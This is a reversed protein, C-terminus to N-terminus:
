YHNSPAFISRDLRPFKDERLTLYLRRGDDVMIILERIFAGLLHRSYIAEIKQATQIHEVVTARQYLGAPALSKSGTRMAAHFTDRQPLAALAQEKTIVTTM